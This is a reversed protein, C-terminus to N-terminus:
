GGDINEAFTPTRGKYSHASQPGSSPERVTGSYTKRAELTRRRVDKRWQLIAQRRGTYADYPDCEGVGWPLASAFLPM